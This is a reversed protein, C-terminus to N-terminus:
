AQMACVHAATAVTVVIPTATAGAALASGAACNAAFQFPVHCEPPPPPAAVTCRSLAAGITPFM